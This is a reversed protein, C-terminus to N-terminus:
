ANLWKETLDQEVLQGLRKVEDEFYEKLRIKTDSSMPPTQRHKKNFNALWLYLKRQLKIRLAPPLMELPGQIANSNRISEKHLFDNLFKFRYGGKTVNQKVQFSFDERVNLFKLVDQIFGHPSAKYDEFIGIYLQNRNFFHLYRQIQHYYLSHGTYDLQAKQFYTQYAQKGAIEEEIAESFTRNELGRQVAYNYGSYARDIPNRVMFLLNLGPDFHYLREPAEQFYALNVDASAIIHQNRWSDFLAEYFDSGKNYWADKTFFPLDKVQFPAYIDPHQSLIDYVITTGSKQAGILFTNPLAM